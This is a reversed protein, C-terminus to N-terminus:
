KLFFGVLASPISAWLLLLFLTLNEDKVIWHRGKIQIRSTFLAKIIKGIRKAFIIVIAILTAFHLLIEFLIGPSEFGIYDAVLVLHGSSSVPLFETLGQIIGLIISKLVM